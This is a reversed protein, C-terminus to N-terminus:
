AAVLVPAGQSQPPPAAATLTIVENDDVDAPIPFGLARYGKATLWMRGELQIGSM